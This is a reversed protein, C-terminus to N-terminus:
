FFLSEPSHPYPIVSGSASLFLWKGDLLRCICCLPLTLACAGPSVCCFTSFVFSFCIFFPLCYLVSLPLVSTIMLFSDRSFCSLLKAVLFRRQKVGLGGCWGATISAKRILFSSSFFILTGCNRSKYLKKPPLAFPLSASTQRFATQM